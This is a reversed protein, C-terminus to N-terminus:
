PRAYNSRLKYVKTKFLKILANLVGYTFVGGSIYYYPFISLPFWGKGIKFWWFPWKAYVNSYQLTNVYRYFWQQPNTLSNAWIDWLGAIIFIGFMVAWFQRLDWQDWCYIICMLGIAMRFAQYQGFQGGWVLFFMLILAHFVLVTVKSLQSSSYNIKRDIWKYFYFFLIGCGPAFLFDEITMGLFWVGLIHEKSFKWAEMSPDAFNMSSFEIWSFPCCIFLWSILIKWNTTKRNLILIVINLILLIAITITYYM